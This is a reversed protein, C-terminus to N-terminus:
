PHFFKEADIEHLGGGRKVDYERYQRQIMVGHEDYVVIKCGSTGIDVGGVYM